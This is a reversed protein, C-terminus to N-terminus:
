IIRSGLRLIDGFPNQTIIKLGGEIATNIFKWEARRLERKCYKQFNRYPSWIKSSKARKFLRKKKKLMRKLFTNLWPVSNNSTISLIPINEKLSKLIGNKFTTWLTDVDLGEKAGNTIEQSINDAELKIQDWNAKKYQYCQRPKQRTM